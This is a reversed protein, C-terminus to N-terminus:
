PRAARRGIPHRRGGARLAFGGPQDEGVHAALQYYAPRLFRADERGGKVKCYLVNGDGVTLRAPDLRETTGDSLLLDFFEPPDGVQRVARVAFAADEAKVYSWASGIQVILRGEEDRGLGEHLAQLTREHSIPEGAYYWNCEKDMSLLNRLKELMEPTLEAPPAGAEEAM